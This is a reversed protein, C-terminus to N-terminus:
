RAGPRVEDGSLEGDGNWDQNMFARDNGRWESRQIVGDRNTDMGEFRMRAQAEATTPIMMAAVALGAALSARTLFKTVMFVERARTQVYRVPCARMWHM